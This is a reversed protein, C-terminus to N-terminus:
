SSGGSVVIQFRKGAPVELLFGPPGATVSAGDPVVGDTVGQAVRGVISGSALSRAVDKAVDVTERVVGSRADDPLERRLAVLGPVKQDVAYGEFSLREGGPLILETFTVYVRLADAQFRGKAITGEPAVLRGKSRVEKTLRALVPAGHGSAIGVELKAQLRDGIALPVVNTRDGQPASEVKVLGGPSFWRGGRKSSREVPRAGARENARRSSQHVVSPARGDIPDVGAKERGLEAIAKLERRMQEDHDPVKEPETARMRREIEQETVPPAGQIEITPFRSGDVVVPAPEQSSESPVLAFVAIIGTAGLLSLQAM